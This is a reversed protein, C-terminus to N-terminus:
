CLGLTLADNRLGLEGGMILIDEHPRGLIEELEAAQGVVNQSLRRTAAKGDLRSVNTTSNYPIPTYVPNAPLSTLNPLSAKEDYSALPTSPMSHDHPLKPTAPNNGIRSLAVEHWIETM